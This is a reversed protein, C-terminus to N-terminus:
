NKILNIKEIMKYFFEVDSGTQLHEKDNYWIDKQNSPCMEFLREGHYPPTVKDNTSVVIVVPADYVKKIYELSNWLDGIFYSSILRFPYFPIYSNISEFPNELFISQVYQKHEPYVHLAVSCGLSRGYFVLPHSSVVNKRIYKVVARVDKVIGEQSPTGTSKGNGRYSFTVVNAHIAKMKDVTHDVENNITGRNGMFILITCQAKPNRHIMTDIQIMDETQILVRDGLDFDVSAKSFKYVFMSEVIGKIM